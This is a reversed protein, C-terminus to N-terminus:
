GTRTNANAECSKLLKCKRKAGNRPLEITSWNWYQNDFNQFLVTSSEALGNPRIQKKQKIANDIKDGLTCRLSLTTANYYLVTNTRLNYQPGSNHGYVFSHKWFPYLYFSIDFELSSYQHFHDNGILVLSSIAVGGAQHVLGLHPVSIFELL